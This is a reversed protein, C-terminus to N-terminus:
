KESGIAQEHKGQKAHCPELHQAQFAVLFERAAGQLVLHVNPMDLVLAILVSRNLRLSVPM